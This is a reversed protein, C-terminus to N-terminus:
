PNTDSPSVRIDGNPTVRIDGNPLSRIEGVNPEPYDKSSAETVLIKNSETSLYKGSETVIIRVVDPSDPDYTPYRVGYPILEMLQYKEEIPTIWDSQLLGGTDAGPSVSWWIWSMALRTDTDSPFETTANFDRLNIYKALREFWEREYTANPVTLNGQDDIGFRGGVEGILIPAIGERAIYGWWQEWLLPLNEPWNVPMTPNSEQRLWDNAYVSHGYEHPSYVVKNPRNLVVPRTKVWSLDGGWWPRPLLSTKCGEVLILWDPAFEHIRNGMQECLSAWQQYPTDWPENHLDAGIVAPHSGYRQALKIWFEEWDEYVHGPIVPGGEDGITGTIFNKHHDLLVYVGLEACYDLIKDLIAICSLGELDENFDFIISWEKPMQGSQMVPTSLPLRILDLGRGHIEDIISKWNRSWLGQPVKIDGEMGYWSVGRFRHPYKRNEEDVFYIQSGSTYFKRGGVPIPHYSFGEPTGDTFIMYDGDTSILLEQTEDDFKGQGFLEVVQSGNGANSSIVVVAEYTSVSSPTFYVVVQESRGPKITPIPTSSARHFAPDSFQVNSVVLDDEGINHIELVLPSSRNEEIVVGFDLVEPELKCIPQMQSTQLSVALLDGEQFNYLVSNPAVTKSGVGNVLPIAEGGVNAVQFHDGQVQIHVSTVNGVRQVYVHHLSCWRQEHYPSCRGIGAKNGDSFRWAPDISDDRYLFGVRTGAIKSSGALINAGQVEWSNSFGTTNRRPVVGSSLNIKYPAKKDSSASSRYAVAQVSATYPHVKGRELRFTGFGPISVMRNNAGNLNLLIKELVPM